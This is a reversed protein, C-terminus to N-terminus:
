RVETVIISIICCRELQTFCQNDLPTIIVGGFSYIAMVISFSEM